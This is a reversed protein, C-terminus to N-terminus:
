GGGRMYDKSRLGRRLQVTVVGNEVQLEFVGLKDDLKILSAYDIRETRTAQGINEPKRKLNSSSKTRGANHYGSNGVMNIRQPLKPPYGLRARSFDPGGTRSEANIRRDINAMAVGPNRYINPNNNIGDRGGIRGYRPDRNPKIKKDLYRRDGGGPGGGRRRGVGPGIGGTQLKGRGFEPGYGSMLNRLFVDDGGQDVDFEKASRTRVNRTEPTNQDQITGM